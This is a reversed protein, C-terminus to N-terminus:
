NQILLTGAQRDIQATVSSVDKEMRLIYNRLPYITAPNEPVVSIKLINNGYLMSPPNFGIIEVIGTLRNYNGINDVVVVDDIDVIQIINSKLRNKMRCVKGAYNFANSTLRHYEDDPQAIQCPFQLTFTNVNQFDIAQEMQVKLDIRSSLIARDYADIETLLNSRRFTKSFTSLNDDFYKSIFSYLNNEMTTSSTGTKAPDFRFSVDVELFVDKPDVFKPTMSMTALSKVYTNKIADKVSQQTATPTNNKFNLSIYVSGYDIPINEDGSWVAAERVTSFNTEISAKYDLSTVLRQQSAFAIPALQRISENSQKEAGSASEGSVTVGLVYAVGNVTVQDSALFSSAGNAAAGKSSLYTVVVKEGPEPSKGFSLGDGFNLEYFGNPAEHISYYRTQSNISTALSLPLYDVYSSSTLSAYARVSATFKDMTEDPIIYVQREDKPGVIFTKTKETGEYIPIDTSGEKTIFDYTGTGNDRASYQELTRFTYSTGDVQTTFESGAPLFVTLPRRTLGALNLSLEVTARSTTRSRTEYGLLAAHSLLSSRLQASSIFSENVAMNAILANQHTNYALVDLLNNLGAGEFDYSNFESKSQFYTKLRTKITDFDLDASSTTTAM